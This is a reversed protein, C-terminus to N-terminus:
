QLKKYAPTFGALPVTVTTTKKELNQFSVALTTGKQMAGIETKSAGMGAYCGHADCTQVPLERAKGNDVKVELGAPLFLGHPLHLLMAASDDNQNRRVSVSILRQGTQRMAITQLARCQLGSGANECTVAWGPQPPTENKEEQANAPVATSLSLMAAALFAKSLNQM